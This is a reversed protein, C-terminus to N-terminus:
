IPILVSFFGHVLRWFEYSFKLLSILLSLKPLQFLSLQIPLL